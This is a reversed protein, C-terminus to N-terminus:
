PSVSPDVLSATAVLAEEILEPDLMAWIHEYIDSSVFDWNVLGNEINGPVAAYKQALQALEELGVKM